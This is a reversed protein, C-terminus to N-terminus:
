ERGQVIYIGSLFVTYYSPTSNGGRYQIYVQSSYQTTALHVIGEETSYIYRLSISHLLQTYQERRQVIYIGPLFVTYSPASNGGRYQIYVQSSYQTTALHVIGEETSYIYRPPISHLLQTYQERMQVLWSYPKMM